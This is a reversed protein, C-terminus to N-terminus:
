RNRKLRKLNSLRNITGNTSATNFHKTQINKHTPKNNQL